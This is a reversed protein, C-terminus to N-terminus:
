LHQFQSAFLALSLSLSFYLFLSPSVSDFRFLRYLLRNYSQFLAFSHSLTLPHLDALWSVGFVCEIGNSCDVHENNMIRYVCKKGRHSWRMYVTNLLFMTLVVVMMTVVMMPMNTHYVCRIPLLVVYSVLSLLINESSRYRVPPLSKHNNKRWQLLRSAPRQQQQRWWWCRRRRRKRWERQRWNVM